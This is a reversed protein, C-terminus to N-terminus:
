SDVDTPPSAPELDGCEYLIAAATVLGATEARLLRRGLTVPIIGHNRAMEVEGPTFGGEPGVFLNVTLPLSEGRGALERQLVQRLGLAHEQEWAILSLGSARRCAEELGVAPELTPLRGRGSQEAAETIVRRWREQRGATPRAAICRECALPIFSSVGIETCKQLVLEFRTGKLLAQYLTIKTTAELIASSGSVMGAIRDSDIESLSVQYERGTDDLVAIRDGKRLRLVHKLQHVLDGSITVRDHEIWHPPIFFRHM